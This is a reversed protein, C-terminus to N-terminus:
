RKPQPKKWEFQGKSHVSRLFRKRDADRQAVGNRVMLRQQGNMPEGGALVMASLTDDIAKNSKM